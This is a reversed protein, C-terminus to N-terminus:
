GQLKPDNDLAHLCKEALPSGSGKHYEAVAQRVRKATDRRHREFDPHGAHQDIGAKTSTILARLEDDNTPPAVVYPTPLSAKFDPPLIM